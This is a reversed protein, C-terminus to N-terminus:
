LKLAVRPLIPINYYIFLLFLQLEERECKWLLSKIRYNIPQQARKPTFHMM